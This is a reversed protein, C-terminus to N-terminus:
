IRGADYLKKFLEACKEYSMPPYYYYGQIADCDLSRLFDLQEKSEVGEAIVHINKFHALEISHKVLEEGDPTGIFDILSKDLKVVDFPILNLSALSSSGTGFDDMDIRFGSVKLEEALTKIQNNGFSSTETIELPVYEIPLGIEEVIQKYRNIVGSHHLSVRSINVSVPVITINKEMLSKLLKCVNTFVYEDLHVILGDNEFVYIFDAPSIVKGDKDVWRVLAEAGILKETKADFKPQYWVKFDGNKIAEHFSAELIQERQHRNSISGEYNALTNDYNRLISKAALLARDCLLNPPLSKDVKGYFGYKVVPNPIPGNEAIKNVRSIFFEGGPNLSHRFINVFMDGGYRAFVPEPLIKQYEKALYCLLEDCKKTGYISNLLKFNEINSVMIDYEVDPNEKFMKRVRRYFASRTLLGTLLDHEYEYLKKNSTTQRYFLFSIFLLVVFTTLLIELILDKYSVWGKIPEIALHWVDNPIRISIVVNDSLKKGSDNLIYGFDDVITNSNDDKWVAIYYGSNNHKINSLVQSVYSDWEIAVISFFEFNGNKYYPNRIILGTGGEILPHPGAVTIKGTEIAQIAKDKQLEDELMNFGITQDKVIEPYAAVIIGKPAIYMSGISPNDNYFHQCNRDFNEIFNDGYELYIDKLVTTTSISQDLSLIFSTALSQGYRAATEAEEKLKNKHLTNIFGIELTIFCLIVFVDIIIQTPTLIIRSNKSKLRAAM